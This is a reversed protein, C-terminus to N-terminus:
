HQAHLYLYALKSLALLKNHSTSSSDMSSGESMLDLQDHKLVVRRSIMSCPKVIGGLFFKGQNFLSIMWETNSTVSAYM